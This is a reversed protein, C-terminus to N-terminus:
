FLYNVGKFGKIIVKKSDLLSTFKEAYRNKRSFM